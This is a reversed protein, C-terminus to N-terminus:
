ENANLKSIYKNLITKSYRKVTAIKASNDNNVSSSTSQNSTEDNTDDSITTKINISKKITSTATKSTNYLVDVFNILGGVISIMQMVNNVNTIIKIFDPTLGVWPVVINSINLSQNVVDEKGPLMYATQKNISNATLKSTTVKVESDNINIGGNSGQLVINSKSLGIIPSDEGNIFYIAPSEDTEGAIGANNRIYNFSKTQLIPTATVFDFICNDNYIFSDLGNYSISVEYTSITNYDYHIINENKYIPICYRYITKPATKDYDDFLYPITIQLDVYTTYTTEDEYIGLTEKNPFINTIWQPVNNGTILTGILKTSKEAM